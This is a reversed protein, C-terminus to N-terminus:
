EIKMVKRMVTKGKNAIKVFYLGAPLGTAPIVHAMKGNVAEAQQTYVSQGQTNLLQIGFYPSSLGQAEVIINEKAPNPYVSVAADLEKETGTVADQIYLNDISWGWGTNTENSFLRFRIVVEDNVEFEGTQTMDILRTRYLPPTGNGGSLFTSLWVSHEVADYGDLFRSWTEGNDKSGEVIVYDNFAATGFVVGGSHGEVVAIEDFRIYPNSASITISKKLTYTFDSTLDLGRGQLYDHDSHIAGNAFAVPQTISFFNGVFDNSASNFDNDYQNVPTGFDIVPVQIFGNLPFTGTNGAADTAIIRYEILDGLSFPTGGLDIDYTYSSAPPDVDFDHEQLTGNNIKFEVKLSEVGSADTANTVIPLETAGLVLYDVHDNLVTPGTEDIQIKLNDIAWGWGAALQDSFLRFRIVVEDGEDFEALLDMTRTRYLAPSGVGSSIQTVPNITSNYLDLWASNSRADYGNAVPTWTNGGDMSGEVVVYDYFDDEGFVSGAEGPEVLVIEDFKVTADEAKVRIPIKLQYVFNLENDPLGNGEPYPHVTHIAADVFGSPTTISFGNGFFDDSPANFDNEYFDEAPELGVVDVVHFGTSSPSFGLNGSVTGIEAIDRATIRYTIEDGDALGLPGLNITAAYISDEEPAILTMPITGALVANKYYELSVTEIGLNDIIKAEIELGPNTNLVFGEASHTIIPAETDPGTEFTFLHQLQPQGERVIKGPNVFQRGKNDTVSIFYSYEEPSGTAPISATFENPTGTAVMTVDTFTSGNLTYHLTVSGASYGNDSQMTVTVPYTGTVIESGPFQNHNIKTIEWGLDELINLTIGPSHMKEQPAVAHTMLAHPTGDFTNDDLHSISSGGDFVSPAYLKPEGPVGSTPSDFFINTSTLQTRMAPSPSAFSEILNQDGGNEIPVDYIIPAETTGVGYFGNTGQVEFSSAFGLGHGIEHLVVTVLDFTNPPPNTSPNLHWNAGSSFQAFIDPENGNLNQGTIKEAMAVPYFVNLKQAGSFNAFAATYLAGGLVGPGLSSWHAEIRITVPSSILTEWIDVAAQFAQQAEVSFGIYTVEINSTKIRAQPNTKWLLYEEPPAIEFPHNVPNAYCVVPKKIKMSMPQQAHACISNILISLILLRGRM